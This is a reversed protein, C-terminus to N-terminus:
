LIFVLFNWSSSRKKQKELLLRLLRMKFACFCFLVFSWRLLRKFNNHIDQWDGLMSSIHRGNVQLLSLTLDCIQIRLSCTDEQATPIVFCHSDLSLPCFSPPSPWNRLLLFESYFTDQFLFWKKQYRFPAIPLACEGASIHLVLFLLVLLSVLPLICIPFGLTSWFIGWFLHMCSVWVWPTGPGSTLKSLPGPVALDESSWSSTHWPNNESYLTSVLECQESLEIM